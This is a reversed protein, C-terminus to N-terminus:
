TIILRSLSVGHVPMDVQKKQRSSGKPHISLQNAIENKISDPIFELEKEGAGVISVEIQHQLFKERLSINKKM